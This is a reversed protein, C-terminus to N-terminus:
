RRGPGYRMASVVSTSFPKGSRAVFGANALRAAIKRLPLKAFAPSRAM